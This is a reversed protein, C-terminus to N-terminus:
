FFEGGGEFLLGGLQEVPQDGVSSDFDGGGWVGSTFSTRVRGTDFDGGDGLGSAVERNEWYTGSWILAQGEGIDERIRVDFMEAISSAGGKLFSGPAWQQGNWQLGQGDIPPRDTTEVDALDDLVVPQLADKAVYMDRTADYVLVDGDQIDDVDVDSLDAMKNAGSTPAPGSYWGGLAESYLLTYNNQLSEEEAVVDNLDNLAFDGLGPPIGPVWQLTAADYILTKGDGLLGNSLNVDIADNIVYSLNTSKPRFRNNVDDWALIQNNSIERGNDDTRWVDTAGLLTYNGQFEPVDQIVRFKATAADYFLYGSGLAASDADFDDLSTILTDKGFSTFGIGPDEVGWAEPDYGYTSLRMWSYDDEAEDQNLRVSVLQGAQTSTTIPLLKWTMLGKKPVDGNFYDQTKLYPQSMLGTFGAGIIPLPAQDVEPIDLLSAAPFQTGFQGTPSLLPTGNITCRIERNSGNSLFWTGWQIYFWSQANLPVSSIWVSVYEVGNLSCTTRLSTPSLIELKATGYDFLVQAQDANTPRIWLGMTWNRRANPEKMQPSFPVSGAASVPRVGRIGAIDDDRLDDPFRLVGYHFGDELTGSGYYEPPEIRDVHIDRELDSSGYMGLVYPSDGSTGYATTPAFHRGQDEGFTSLMFAFQSESRWNLGGDTLLIEEYSLPALDTPKFKFGESTFTWRLGQGEQIGTTDIDKFDSFTVEGAQVSKAWNNTNDEQVWYFDGGDGNEAEETIGLTGLPAVPLNNLDDLLDVTVNGGAVAGPVWVGQLGDYLLIDGDLPTTSSLNVDQLDGLGEPYFGNEWRNNSINWVLTQGDIPVADLSVDAFDDLTAIDVGQGMRWDGTFGGASIQSPDKPKWVLTAGETQSYETSIARVDGLEFISNGSLNARPAPVNIWKNTPRGPYELAETAGSPDNYILVEGAQPNVIDMDALEELRPRIKVVDGIGDLTYLTIGEDNSLIALEGRYLAYLGQGPTILDEFIYDVANQQFKVTINTSFLAM